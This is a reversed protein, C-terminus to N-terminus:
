EGRSSWLDAQFIEKDVLSRFFASKNDFKNEIMDWVEDPLTISVKKTVGLSPRGMKNEAVLERKNISM